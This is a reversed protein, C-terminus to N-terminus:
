SSRHSLVARERVLAESDKILDLGMKKLAAGLLPEPFSRQWGFVFIRRAACATPTVKWWVVLTAVDADCFTIPERGDGLGDSQGRREAM